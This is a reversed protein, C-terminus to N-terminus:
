RRLKRLTENLYDRHEAIKDVLDRAEDNWLAGSPYRKRAMGLDDAAEDLKAVADRLAETGTKPPLTERPITPLRLKPLGSPEIIEVDEDPV